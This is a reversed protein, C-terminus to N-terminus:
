ITGSDYYRSPMLRFNLAAHHMRTHAKQSPVSRRLNRVSRTVLMFNM